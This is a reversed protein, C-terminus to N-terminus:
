RTVPQDRYATNPTWNDTAAADRALQNVQELLDFGGPISRAFEQYFPLSAQRFAETDLQNAIMTEGLEDILANEIRVATGYVWDRMENATSALIQQVQPPLQRFHHESTILYAPTYIHDSLTLYRQVEQFKAGHIQALPNEQGDVEGSKLAEYTDDLALPIPNAGLANFARVRWVGKPVRLKVLALDAPMKIPRLNNTIQRFGNEWIALIRYGHSGVEPQLVPELMADCIRRVHERNRILFPLEFVGFKPSVTSMVTSHLAFAIEGRRIKGLVEMDDGRQSQGFVVVRFDSPLKENVRKAFENASAEFLSGSGGVHAFVLETQAM